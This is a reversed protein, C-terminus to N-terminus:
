IRKDFLLGMFQQMDSFYDLIKKSPIERIVQDTKSDVMQVYYEGSRDHLLFKSYIQSQEAMQNLRKVADKLQQKSPEGQSEFSKQDKEQSNQYYSQDSSTQNQISPINSIKSIEM